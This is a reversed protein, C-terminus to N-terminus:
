THGHKRLEEEIRNTHEGVTKQTVLMFRSGTRQGGKALSSSKLMPYVYADEIEVMQALGNRYKDGERCLEM